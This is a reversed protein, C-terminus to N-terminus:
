AVKRLSKQDNSIQIILKNILKGKDSSMGWLQNNVHRAENMASVFADSFHGLMSRDFELLDGPIDFNKRRQELNFEINRARAMIDIIISWSTSYVSKLNFWMDKVTNTLQKTESAAKKIKGAKFSKNISDITNEITREKRITESIKGRIVMMEVWSNKIILGRKMFGTVIPVEAKLINETYHLLSQTQNRVYDQIDNEIREFEDHLAKSERILADYEAAEEKLDLLVQKGTKKEHRRISKITSPSIRSINNFLKKVWLSNNIYLNFYAVGARSLWLLQDEISMRSETLFHQKTIKSIRKALHRIFYWSQTLIKSEYREEVKTIMGQAERTILGAKKSRLDYINHRFEGVKSTWSTQAGLLNVM